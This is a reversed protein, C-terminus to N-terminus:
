EDLFTEGPYFVHSSHCVGCVDRRPCSDVTRNSLWLARERDQESEVLAIDLFFRRGCRECIFIETESLALRAALRERDRM